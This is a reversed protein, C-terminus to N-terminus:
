EVWFDDTTNKWWPQVDIHGSMVFAMYALEWRGKQRPRGFPGAGEEAGRNFADMAKALPEAFQPHSKFLRVFDLSGMEAADEAFATADELVVPLDENRRQKPKGAM